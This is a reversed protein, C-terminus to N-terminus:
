ANRRVTVVTIDDNQGWAKAAHAIEQASKTSIERTRDFGFLERQANEAEVVGDSVLTFYTGATISEEYTVGPAIGLPLGTAVILERGDAYPAPHGASALTVPSDLDFRVCCCTVFGGGTHGALGENMTALIEAPSSSKVTRLIGIAVSVLMAAKLGKGSVDGVVAILAGGNDVRSWHFDGGVESAPEYVAELDFASTHEGAAPLLLQQVVRAAELEAGLRQKETRDALLGRVLVLVMALTFVAAAVPQDSITYPGIRLQADPLLEFVTNTSNDVRVQLLWLIAAGGLIWLRGSTRGSSQRWAWVLVLPALVQIGRFPWEPWVRLMYLVVLPWGVIRFWFAPLALAAAVFELLMMLHAAQPSFYSAWPTSDPGILLVIQMRRVGVAFAHMALWFYAWRTREKLFMLLPILGLCLLAVGTVLDLTRTLRLRDLFAIGSTRPANAGGTLLYPGTDPANQWANSGVMGLLRAPRCRLAITVRGAPLSPLDFTRPRALRSQGASYDGVQAIRLGQVFLEYNETIKGLTLALKAGELGAPLDFSKRLWFYVPQTFNPGPLSVTSWRSDDFGPDAQGPSDQYSLHWTGSLDIWPLTQAPLASALLIWIWTRM